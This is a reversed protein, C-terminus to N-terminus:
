FEQARRLPERLHGRPLELQCVRCLHGAAPCLQLRYFLDGCASVDSAANQKQAANQGRVAKSRQHGKTQCRCKAILESGKELNQPRNGFLFVPMLVVVSINQMGASVLVPVVSAAWRIFVTYCFSLLFVLAIQSFFPSKRGHLSAADPARPFLRRVGEAPSLPRRVPISPVAGAKRYRRLVPFFEPRLVSKM